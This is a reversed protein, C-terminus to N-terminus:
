RVRRRKKQGYPKHHVEAETAITAWKFLEQESLHIWSRLTCDLLMSMDDL